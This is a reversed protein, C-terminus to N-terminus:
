LSRLGEILVTKLVTTATINYKPDNIKNLLLHVCTEAMQAIPGVSASAAGM